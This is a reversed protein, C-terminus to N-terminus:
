QGAAPLEKICYLNQVTRIVIAGDAVAYSALTREGLDNAALKRFEKGAKLVVGLGNEDQVYLKGEAFVPSASCQAAVREQWHVQGTRADLCSLMGSDTLAYLENDSVLLSPTNPAGKRATWAVSRTDGAGDARIALISPADFGTCVFLLGHRFVPRPIVSYGEGYSVRWIERGAVPEYAFVAGSAASIIQKKGKVTIVLPTSFSFKKQAGTVRNVKWRTAGTNKDLAAIFPDHAGDCNFVILDDVIAPSGGNGHVPPYKHENNRWLVQGSLNLCATGMHGFHAYLRDGEIVPTPSAQSNKTHGPTIPTQFVEADWVTHGEAAELCLARLKQENGSDLAVATTLYIRGNYFLPSSWGNGSVPRKWAVNKTTSWETPLQRADSIGQGTPGRFEPWNEAALGAFAGGAALWGYIVIRRTILM